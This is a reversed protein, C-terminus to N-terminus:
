LGSELKLTVGTGVDGVASTAAPSPGAAAAPEAGIPGAGPMGPRFPRFDDRGGEDRRNRLLDFRREFRSETDRLKRDFDRRDRDSTCSDLLSTVFLTILTSLIWKMM